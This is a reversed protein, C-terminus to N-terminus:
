SDFAGLILAPQTDRKVPYARLVDVQHDSLKVANRISQVRADPLKVGIVNVSLDVREASVESPAQAFMETGLPVAVAGMALARTFRRRSLM